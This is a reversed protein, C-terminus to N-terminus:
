ARDRETTTGANGAGENWLDAIARGIASVVVPMVANGM